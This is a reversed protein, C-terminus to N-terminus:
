RLWLPHADGGFADLAGTGAAAGGDARHSVAQPHCFWPRLLCLGASFAAAYQQAPGPYQIEKGYRVFLGGSIGTGQLSPHEHHAGCGLPDSAAGACSWDEGRQQMRDVFRLFGAIGKLGGAEYEQAYQILLRLNAKRIQGYKMALVVDWLGTRDILQQILRHAPSSSAIQRLQSFSSLFDACKQSLQQEREDEPQQAIAQCNLYLHSRRDHMRVVAMEDATFAYVPSMMAATLHIDILPNDVARLISLATSIEVTELFGVRSDTWVPVGLRTLENEYIQARNKMSRLLICIEGPRM